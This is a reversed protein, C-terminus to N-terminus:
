QKRGDGFNVGCELLYDGAHDQGVPAAAGMAVAAWVVLGAVSIRMALGKPDGWLRRRGELSLKGHCKSPLNLRFNSANRRSRCNFLQRHKRRVPLERRQLNRLSL